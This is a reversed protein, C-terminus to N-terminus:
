EKLHEKFFNSTNQMAQTFSSGTINHGGSPYEHLEHVINTKDLLTNLDRSYSINVVPDDVAHNLQLAGQNSLYNTAPVTKWFPDQPNFEQHLSRLEDRRRQRNSTDDPPRYSNDDIGYKAMDEYTYVAGGWIVGAPVEPLATMSRLVVNGAMSHGWLGVASSNVFDASQLARYANLTDVIYDGSYYAGSAEGQSNAHGRLDIKFVVFGNRALYDVYDIYNGTTEYISPPIYGHVFVIAPWGKEPPTGDPVTLLGNINLGDSDYSALYSTYIGNDNIMERSTITSKYERNSLYPMTMDYFPDQAFEQNNQTNQTQSQTIQTPTNKQNTLIYASFAILGIIIIVLAIWVWKRSPPTPTPEPSLPTPLPTQPM